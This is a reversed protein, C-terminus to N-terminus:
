LLINRVQLEQDWQSIGCYEISVPLRDQIFKDVIEVQRKFLSSMEKPIDRLEFSTSITKKPDNENGTASAEEELDVAKMQHVVATVLCEVLRCFVKVQNLKLHQKVDFVLYVLNEIFVLTEKMGGKGIQKPSFCTTRFVTVNNTLM